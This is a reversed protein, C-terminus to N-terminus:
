VLRRCNSVPSDIVSQIDIPLVNLHTDTLYYLKGDLGPVTRGEPVSNQTQFDPDQDEDDDWPPDDWEKEEESNATPSSPNM